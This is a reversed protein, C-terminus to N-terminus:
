WTPIFVDFDCVMVHKKSSHTSPGLLDRDSLQKKGGVSSRNPIPLYM